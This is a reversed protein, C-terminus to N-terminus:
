LCAFVLVEFCGRASRIYSCMSEYFSDIDVRFVVGDGMWWGVSREM